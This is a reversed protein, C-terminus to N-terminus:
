TLAEKRKEIAYEKIYWTKIALNSARLFKLAEKVADKDADSLFQPMKTIENKQLKQAIEIADISSIAM